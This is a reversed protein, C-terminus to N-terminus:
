NLRDLYIFIAGEYLGLTLINVSHVVKNDDINTFRIDNVPSAM